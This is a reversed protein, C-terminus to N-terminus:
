LQLFELCQEQTTNLRGLTVDTHLELVVKGGHFLALPTVRDGRNDLVHLCGQLAGRSRGGPVHLPSPSVARLSEKAM